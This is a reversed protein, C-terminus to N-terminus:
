PDTCRLLIRIYIWCSAYAVWMVRLGSGFRGRYRYIVTVTHCIGSATSVAKQAGSSPHHYWGFCTSYNESIIAAPLLLPTVFVLHQLYLQNREQHHTTTGGSVHVATELYYLSHLTADQQIYILVHQLIDCATILLTSTFNESHTGHLCATCHFYLEVCEEWEASCPPLFDIKRGRWKTGLCSGLAGVTRICMHAPAVASGFVKYIVLV